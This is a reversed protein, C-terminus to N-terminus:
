NKWKTNIFQPTPEWDPATDAFGEMELVSKPWQAALMDELWELIQLDAVVM